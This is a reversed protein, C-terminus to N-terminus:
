EEARAQEERFGRVEAVFHMYEQFTFSDSGDDDVEALKNKWFNQEEKNRPALGLDAMCRQMEMGALEGSHDQDYREFRKADELLQEHSAGRFIGRVRHVVQLFEIFNWAPPM